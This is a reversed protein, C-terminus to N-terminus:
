QREGFAALGTNGALYLTRNAGIAVETLVSGAPAPVQYKLTGDPNVAVLGDGGFVYLTGAADIAPKTEVKHSTALRWRETGDPHVAYVTGACAFYVTGDAGVSPGSQPNGKVRYRWRERGDPGVAYLTGTDAGLGTSPDGSLIYVTGDPAVAPPQGMDQDGASDRPDFRWRARGEPDIALLMGRYDYSEGNPYSMDVSAGFYVTGDPGVAPPSQHLLGGMDYEWRVTGDPDLAHLQSRGGFAGDDLAYITGDAAIAPADVLDGLPREWRLSGDPRLAYLRGKGGTGVWSAVYVTGDPSITASPAVELGNTRFDWLLTGDPRLAHLKTKRYPDTAGSGIYITGDEAVVPCSGEYSGYAVQWLLEPKGPGLHPSLGSRRMDYGLTPWPATTPDSPRTKTTSSTMPPPTSTTRSSACAGVFLLGLITSAAVYRSAKYSGFGCGRALKEGRTRGLGLIAHCHEANLMWARVRM